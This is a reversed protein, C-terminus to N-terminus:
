HRDIQFYNLMKMRRLDTNSNFKSELELNEPIDLKFYLDVKISIQMEVLAKLILHYEKLLSFYIKIIKAQIYLTVAFLLFMAVNLYKNGLGVKFIFVMSAVNIIGIAITVLTRLLSSNIHSKVEREMQVAFNYTDNLTPGM